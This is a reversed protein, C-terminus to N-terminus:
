PGSPPSAPAPAAPAAPPPCNSAEPCSAACMQSNLGDIQSQVTPNNLGSLLSKTSMLAGCVGSSGEKVLSDQASKVTINNSETQFGERKCYRYAWFIVLIGVIGMVFYQLNTSTFLNKM